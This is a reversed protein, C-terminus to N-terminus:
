KKTKAYNLMWDVGFKDTFSAYLAGWFADGVPMTVKGGASLKGFLDMLEKESECDIVITFNDGKTFSRPDMMDNATLLVVEDKTLSSHIIM